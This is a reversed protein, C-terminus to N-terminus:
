GTSVLNEHIWGNAGYCSARLWGNEAPPWVTLSWGVGCWRVHPHEAGPGSRIHAPGSTVVAPLGSPPLPEDSDSVAPPAADPETASEGVDM